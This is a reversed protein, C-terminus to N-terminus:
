NDGGPSAASGSLQSLSRAPSHKRTAPPAYTKYVSIHFVSQQFEEEVDIKGTAEITRLHERMWAIQASSLNRKSIDVAAGTLHPSATAGASPAANGNIRELHQQVAITRVASNVQLPTGFRAYFSASIDALFRATWPRCFRRNVPLRPDVTLHFSLPLPLLQGSRRLRELDADNRIRGLGEIDAMQNQHLLIEHSGYLPTPLGTTSPPAAAGSDIDSQTVPPAYHLYSYAIPPAPVPTPPKQAPSALRPAPAYNQSPAPATTSADLLMPAPIVPQAANPQVPDADDPQHVLYAAPMRRQLRPPPAIGTSRAHPAPAPPHSAAAVSSQHAPSTHVVRPPLYHPKAAAAYHPAKAASKAAAPVPKKSVATPRPKISAPSKRSKATSSSVTAVPKRPTPRAVWYSNENVTAARATHGLFAALVVFLASKWRSSTAHFKQVVM